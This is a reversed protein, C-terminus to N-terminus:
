GRRPGIHAAKPIGFLTACSAPDRLTVERSIDGIGPHPSRKEVHLPAKNVSIHCQSELIDGLLQTAGQAGDPTLSQAEWSLRTAPMCPFMVTVRVLDYLLFAASNPGPQRTNYGRPGIPSQIPLLPTKWAQVRHQFKDEQTGSQGM